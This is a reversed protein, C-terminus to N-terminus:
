FSQDREALAAWLPFATGNQSPRRSHRQKEQSLTNLASRPEHNASYPPPNRSSSPFGPSHLQPMTKFTNQMLQCLGRCWYLMVWEGNPDSVKRPLRFLAPPHQVGSGTTSISHVPFMAEEGMFALAQAGPTCAAAECGWRREELESKGAM